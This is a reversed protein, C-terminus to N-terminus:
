EKEKISLGLWLRVLLKYNHFITKWSVKDKAIERFHNKFQFSKATDIFAFNFGGGHKYNLSSVWLYIFM